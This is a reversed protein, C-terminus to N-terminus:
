GFKLGEGAEVGWRREGVGRKRVWRAGEGVAAVADVLRQSGPGHGHQLAGDAEVAGPVAQGDQLEVVECLYEERGSAAGGGERACHTTLWRGM